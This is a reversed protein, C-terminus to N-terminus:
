HKVAYYSLFAGLLICVIAGGYKTYKTSSSDEKKVLVFLTVGIGILVVAGGAAYLNM